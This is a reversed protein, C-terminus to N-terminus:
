NQIIGSLDRCIQGTFKWQRFLFQFLGYLLLISSRRSQSAVYDPLFEGNQLFKSGGNEPSFLLGPLWCSDTLLASCEAQQKRKTAPKSLKSKPMEMVFPELEFISAVHLESVGAFSGV